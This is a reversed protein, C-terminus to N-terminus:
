SRLGLREFHPDVDVAPRSVIHTFVFALVIVVIITALVIYLFRGNLNEFPLLVNSMPSNVLVYWDLEPIRDKLGFSPIGLLMEQGDRAPAVASQRNLGIAASMEDAFDNRTRADPSWIMTGDPRVLSTQDAIGENAAELSAFLAASDLIAKVIGIVEQTERDRVPEMGYLIPAKM